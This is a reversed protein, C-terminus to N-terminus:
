ASPLALIREAAKEAVTVILSTPNTTIMGPFIGADVVFLNDMGYVKTNLDVVSTGGERGDDTGMKSSGMWHNARRTSTSVTYNAVFQEVTVGEAPQLWTLNTVPAFIEVVEKLGAIVAAVDGEDKLYPADSVTMTLSPTITVRGRSVSGRGLYQSITMTNNNDEGLAGEVRASYQFTREIGDDGTLTRFFFPNMNPAAQALIGSRSDLYMDRDEPIPDDYAAYFDYFVVDPHRIVTDTNVHDVLNHGVPLEIWEEQGIMTEGDTRSAAVVELADLPGIGSRMLVKPTGLAGSSLIARGTEPTLNVVGTYGGEAFAEVELGTVHGGTRVLRRVATNTWLNFNEREVATTLYAGLPGFREANKFMYPTFTFVKDKKDPEENATVNEWGAELLAKGLVNYGDLLRITGDMSTHDTSPIREFVRAQAEAMDQSRWGEPFVVDWDAAPPKWFLGSNVATGGGLVCGAMQDVDTCAIGQSDVWIQNCLGPVDFRTLNAGDLWEPGIRGGFQYTSPPGKEILLVSHGAESIKDAVPIGGAGGGVVVYDFALDTPVPTGTFTPGPVTTTSTPTATPTATPSETPEPGPGLNIWESYLANAADAVTLSFLGQGNNHQSVASDPDAPDAPGETDQAWGFVVSGSSTPRNGTAGNHDWALCNQCRYIIKFTSEEVITSIPTVIADGAYIEPATYGTAFRFSTGVEEGNPFAMFLLASVMTGGHSIGTYGKGGTHSGIILGIFETSDVTGADEPLAWGYTLGGTTQQESVTYTGFIIGTEPDTYSGAQALVGHSLSSISATLGLLGKLGFTKM